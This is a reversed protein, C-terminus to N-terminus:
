QLGGKRLYVPYLWKLIFTIAAALSSAGALYAYVSTVVGAAMYMQRVDASYKILYVNCMNMQVVACFILIVTFIVSTWGRKFPIFAFIACVLALVYAFFALGNFYLGGVQM